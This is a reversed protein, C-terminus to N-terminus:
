NKGFKIILLEKINKISGWFPNFRTDPDDKWSVPFEKIKLNMKKANLITEIDFMFGDIRNKRFIKHAVKRKFVKFGCQTDQIPNVGMFWSVIFGFVLSGIQRYKPQKQLIQSEILARSGLAIDYGEELLRLGKEVNKYPVCTGADAFLICEGKTKLIGTKVAYGKGRNQEYRICRLNKYNPELSRVIEYTKDKSGDDVVLVEYDYKQKGLFEYVLALDM